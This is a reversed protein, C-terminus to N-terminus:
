FVVDFDARFRRKYNGFFVGSQPDAINSHVDLANFHNTLNFGSVSFRLTYKPNVKFDKLIRADLSFFNPFRLKDSNPLGVYNRAADVVAYPLGNRYELVPALQMKWPLSVLGWSLFRNPLDGALNTFENARVLPSPFNGLFQNFENLDGKSRSRVYSFLMQQGNKWALKATVEVQRYSPKGGGGLM